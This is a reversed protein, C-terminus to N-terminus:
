SSSRRGRGCPRRRSRRPTDRVDLLLVPDDVDARRLEGVRGLSEVDDDHRVEVAVDQGVDRRLDGARDAEGARRIDARSCAINSAMWPEAGRRAPWFRALGDPSSSPATIISTWMPWGSTASRTWLAQSRVCRPRCGCRRCRGRPRSCASPRCSPTRAPPRRRPEPLLRLLQLRDGVGRAPPVVCLLRVEPRLLGM